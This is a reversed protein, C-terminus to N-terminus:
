GSAFATLESSILFTVQRMIYYGMSHDRDMARLFENGDIAPVKCPTICFATAIRRQAGEVVASWSFVQGSPIVEGGSAQRDGRGLTFRVLGDVLIYFDAARDGLNYIASGQPYSQVRFLPSLATLQEATLDAFFASASLVSAVQETLTGTGGPTVEEEM